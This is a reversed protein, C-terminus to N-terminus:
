LAFFLCKKIKYYTLLFTFPFSKPGGDPIQPKLVNKKHFKIVTKWYNGNKTACLDTFNEVYSNQANPRWSNGFAPPQIYNYQMLNQTTVGLTYM